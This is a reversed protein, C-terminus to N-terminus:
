TQSPRRLNALAGLQHAEVWPMEDQGLQPETGSSYRSALRKPVVGEFGFQNCHDLLVEGSPFTEVRRM